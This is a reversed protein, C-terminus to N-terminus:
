DVPMISSGTSDRLSTVSWQGHCLGAWTEQGRCLPDPQLLEVSHMGFQAAAQALEELSIRIVGSASRTTFMAKLNKLHSRLPRWRPGQVWRLSAAAVGAMSISKLANRRSPSTKEYAKPIQPFKHQANHAATLPKLLQTSPGYVPFNACVLVDSRFM